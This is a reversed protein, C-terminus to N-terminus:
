EKILALSDGEDDGDASVWIILKSEGTMTTM